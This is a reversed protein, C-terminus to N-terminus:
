HLRGVIDQMVSVLDVYTKKIDNLDDPHLGKGKSLKTRPSKLILGDFDFVVYDEAFMVNFAGKKEYIELLKLQMSPNIVKVIDFQKEGKRGQYSFAFVRNFEISEVNVEKKTFLNMFKSGANEKYLFFRSGLKKNLKFAFFHRHYHSTSDKSKVAYHFIGSHFDYSKNNSYIKGYFQDDIYQGSNGKSFIEPVEVRLEKWKKVCREPEYYWGFQKAVEYKIIDKIKSNYYASTLTYVIIGGIIGIIAFHILPFGTLISFMATMFIGGAICVIMVWFAIRVNQASSGNSVLKKHTEELKICEGRILGLDPDGGLAWVTEM